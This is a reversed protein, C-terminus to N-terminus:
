DSSQGGNEPYAAPLGFLDALTVKRRSSIRAPGESAAKVREVLALLL